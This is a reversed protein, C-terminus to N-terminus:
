IPLMSRHEDQAKEHTKERRSYSTVHYPAGRTIAPPRFPDSRPGQSSLFSYMPQLVSFLPTSVSAHSITHNPVVLQVSGVRRLLLASCFFRPNGFNWREYMVLAIRSVMQVSDCILSCCWFDGRSVLPDRVM